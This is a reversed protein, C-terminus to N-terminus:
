GSLDTSHTDEWAALEDQLSKPINTVPMGALERPEVKTLGEVYVRGARAFQSPEISRLFALMVEENAPSEDLWRGVPAKPYLGLYNNLIIGRSRNLFFRRGFAEDRAMYSFIFRPPSSREQKYFTRRRAVITRLKVDSEISRLYDALKPARANIEDWDANVDIVFRLEGLKPDGGADAEIVAGSLFRARPIVPLLWEKPTDLVVPDDGELVFHTNSGTAMGRKIRFLTGLTAVPNTISPIGEDAVFHWKAATRLASLSVDTQVYPDSIIGGASFRVTHEDSPTRKRFIVACSTVRANSFKSPGDYSHVALLTVDRALYDRLARGYNTFMFETPLLWAAVGGNALWDHAALVFYVYLDSRNDVRINRAREISKRWRSVQEFDLRQSRIYPPNALMLSRQSEKWTTVAAIRQDVDTDTTECMGEVFDGAILDLGLSRWRDHTLHGRAADAEVGIASGIRGTGALNVLAALFVGSGIAPDGFDIVSAPAVWELTARTIDFALEPPTLFVAGRRNADLHPSRSHGAREPDLFQVAPWLEDQHFVPHAALVGETGEARSRPATRPLADHLHAAIQRVLTRLEDGVLNPLDQPHIRQNTLQALLQAASYSLNDVGPSARRRETTLRGSPLAVDLDWPFEQLVGYAAAARASPNGDFISVHLFSDPYDPKHHLMELSPSECQLFLTTLGSAQQSRHDFTGPRLLTLRDAVFSEYMRSGHDQLESRVYLVTVHPM